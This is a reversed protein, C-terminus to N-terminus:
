AFWRCILGAVVKVFAHSAMGSWAGLLTCSLAHRCKLAQYVITKVTNNTKQESSPAVRAREKQAPLTSM